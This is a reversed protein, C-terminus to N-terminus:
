AIEINSSPRSSCSLFSKKIAPPIIKGSILQLQCEGCIGVRCYYPIRFGKKELQELLIEQNNGIFKKGQFIIIINVCNNTKM